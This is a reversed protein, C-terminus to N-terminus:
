SSENESESYECKVLVVATKDIVDMDRDGTVENSIDNSNSSSANDNNEETNKLHAMVKKMTSRSFKPLTPDDLVAKHVKNISPAENNDKFQQIIRRIGEFDSSSFKERFGRKPGSKGPSKFENNEKHERLVKYVTKRGIGLMEATKMVSENHIRMKYDHEKICEAAKEEWIYKFANRIMLKETVSLPVPPRKRPPSLRGEKSTSPEQDM